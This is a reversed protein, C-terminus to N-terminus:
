SHCKLVTTKIIKSLLSFHAFIPCKEPSKRRVKARTMQILVTQPFTNSIETQYGTTRMPWYNAPHAVTSKEFVDTAINELFPM